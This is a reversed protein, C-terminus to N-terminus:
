LKIEEVLNQNVDYITFVNNEYIMYSPMSGNRPESISGVCIYTKHHENKILSYHKHGFIIIDNLDYNFNNGHLCTININDLRLNYVEHCTFGLEKIYDYNDCNGKLLVLRDKYNNLYDIIQKNDFSNWGFLDGLVILLDFDNPLLSLNDQNGHIDSIFLAKM